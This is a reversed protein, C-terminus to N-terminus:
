EPGPRRRAARCPSFACYFEGGAPSIRRVMPTHVIVCAARPHEDDLVVILDRLRELPHQPHLAVVHAHGAVAHRREVRRVREQGIQHDEVEAQGLEVPDLHRLLQVPAVVHADEHEGRAVREVVADDAEVGAGVVVEDLRELALLQECPQARQQPPPGRAPGRLDDDTVQHNFDNRIRHVTLSGIAVAFACLIM